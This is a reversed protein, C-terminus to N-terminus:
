FQFQCCRPFSVESNPRCRWFKCSKNSHDEVLFVLMQHDCLERICWRVLNKDHFTSTAINNRGLSFDFVHLSTAGICLGSASNLKSIKIKPFRTHSLFESRFIYGPHTVLFSINTFHDPQEKVFSFSCLLDHQQFDDARSRHRRGWYYSYVRQKKNLHQVNFVNALEGFLFTSSIIVEQVRQPVCGLGLGLGLM